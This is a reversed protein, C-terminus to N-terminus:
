PLNQNFKEIMEAEQYHHTRYWDVPQKLKLIKELLQNIQSQTIGVFYKHINQTM